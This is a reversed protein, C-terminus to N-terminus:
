KEEVEIGIEKLIEKILGKYHNRSVFGRKKWLMFKDAWKEIFERDVSERMIYPIVDFYDEILKKIQNYAQQDTVGGFGITHLEDYLFKFWRLLEEESLEKM